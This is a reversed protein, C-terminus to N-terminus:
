VSGSSSDVGVKGDEFVKEVGAENVGGTRVVEEFVSEGRVVKFALDGVFPLRSRDLDRVVEILAVRGLDEFKVKCPDLESGEVGEKGEKVEWIISEFASELAFTSGLSFGASFRVELGEGCAYRLRVEECRFTDVELGDEGRGEVEFNVRLGGM